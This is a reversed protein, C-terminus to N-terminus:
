SRWRNYVAPRDGDRLALVRRVVTSNDADKLVVADPARAALTREVAFLALPVLLVAWVLVILRHLPGPSAFLWVLVFGTCIAARLLITGPPSAVAVSRRTTSFWPESPPSPPQLPVACGCLGALFFVGAVVGLVRLRYGPAM